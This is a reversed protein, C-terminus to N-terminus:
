EFDEYNMGDDELQRRKKPNSKRPKFLLIIVIVAPVVIGAILIIRLVVNNRNGSDTADDSDGSPTVIPEVKEEPKPNLYNELETKNSVNSEYIYCIEEDVKVAYYVDDGVRKTGLFLAQKDNLSREEGNETATYAKAPKATLLFNPSIREPTTTKVCKELSSTLVYGSLGAYEIPTYVSRNAGVVKVAFGKPLEFKEQAGVFEDTVVFSIKEDGVVYYDGVEALSLPFASTVFVIVILAFLLAYKRM